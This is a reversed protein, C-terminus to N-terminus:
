LTFLEVLLLMVLRLLLYLQNMWLFLLVMPMVWWVVMPIGLMPMAMPCALM